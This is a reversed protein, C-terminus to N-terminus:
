LLAVRPSVCAKRVAIQAENPDKAAKRKRKRRGDSPISAELGGGNSAGDCSATSAMCTADEAERCRSDDTDLQQTAHQPAHATAAPAQYPQQLTFQGPSPIHATYHAALEVECDLVVLRGHDLVALGPLQVIQHSSPPSAKM